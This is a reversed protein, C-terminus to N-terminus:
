RRMAVVGESLGVGILLDGRVYMSDLLMPVGSWMREIAGSLWNLQAVFQHTEDTGGFVYFRDGDRLTHTVSFPLDATWRARGTAPDNVRLRDCAPENEEAETVIEIEWTAGGWTIEAPEKAPLAEGRRGTALDLRRMPSWPTDGIYWHGGIQQLDASKAGFSWLPALDSARFAAVVNPQTGDDTPNRSMRVVVIEGALWLEEVYRTMRRARIRGEDDLAYLTSGLVPANNAVAILPPGKLMRTWQPLKARVLQRGGAVSVVLLERGLDVFVRGHAVVMPDTRGTADHHAIDVEWQTRGSEVDLAILKQRTEVILTKGALASDVAVIDASWVINAPFSAPASPRCPQALVPPAVLVIALFVLRRMIALKALMETLEAM